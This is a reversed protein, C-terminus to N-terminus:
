QGHSHLVLCSPHVCSFVVSSWLINGTARWSSAIRKSPRCLVVMHTLWLGKWGWCFRLQSRRSSGPMHSNPNIHLQGYNMLMVLSNLCEFASYWYNLHFLLYIALTLTLTTCCAWYLCSDESLDHSSCQGRHEFGCCIGSGVERLQSGQGGLLSKSQPSFSYYAYGNTM